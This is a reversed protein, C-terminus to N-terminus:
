HMNKIQNEFADVTVRLRYILSLSLLSTKAALHSNSEYDDGTLVCNTLRPPPDPNPMSPHHIKKSRIPRSRALSRAFSCTLSLSRTTCLHTDIHTHTHTHSLSSYSLDPGAPTSPWHLKGAAAATQPKYQSQLVYKPREEGAIIEKQTIRREPSSTHLPLLAM